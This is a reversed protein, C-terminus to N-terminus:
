PTTKEEADAPAGDTKEDPILQAAPESTDPAVTLDDNKPTPQAPEAPASLQPDVLMDPQIKMIGDTIVIDGKELGKLVVRNQNVTEGLSVERYQVKKEPSVVYVFKRDQDTGVAREPVILKYEDTASGLRVSAFMGPLLTGDENKFHARARITGSRTDIKNDFSHITGEYIADPASQLSLKVPIKQEEAHDKVTGRVYNLYTQEDVDFDAYIGESSVITTLVPANAGSDVLNGETIEARSVRGTIPAKVYAYDLNLQARKLKAEASTVANKGVLENNLREDYTRKPIAGTGILEEARRLEKVALDYQNGSAQLEAKAQAVEAEYPRPDIVFLVDGAKVIQGDEFKIQKITGSVQPRLDVSDVATLRGPFEKWLQVPVEEITVAPVPVAPMGGPAGQAHASNPGAEGSNVILHIGAGAAVLFGIGLLLKISKMSDGPKRIYEPSACLVPGM